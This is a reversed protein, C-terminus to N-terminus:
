LGTFDNEGQNKSLPYLLQHLVQQMTSKLAFDNGQVMVFNIVSYNVEDNKLIYIFYTFPYVHREVQM